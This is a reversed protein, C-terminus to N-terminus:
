LSNEVHNNKSANKNGIPAGAGARRGGRVAGKPAGARLEVRVWEGDILAEVHYNRGGTVREALSALPRWTGNPNGRHRTRLAAGAPIDEERIRDM